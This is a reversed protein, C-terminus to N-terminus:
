GAERAAADATEATGALGALIIAIGRDFSAQQEVRAAVEEPLALAGAEIAALRTQTSQTHGYIFHLLTRAGDEGALEVFQAEVALGGLRYASATAVVEAGDRVSTLAVRLSSSLIRLDGGRVERVIEDAMLALLTQKDPVHHYLASPQVDLHAAVRRMSCFELGNADLVRLAAAIVDARSNRM